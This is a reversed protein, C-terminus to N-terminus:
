EGERAKLRMALSYQVGFVPYRSDCRYVRLRAPDWGRRECAWELLELYRPAEAVRCCDTGNGVFRVSDLLDVRDVDRARNYPLAVGRVYTGYLMLEPEMGPWADPHVLLDLVLRQTPVEVAEMTAAIDGAFRAWRRFMAATYHGFYLDSATGAGLGEDVLHYYSSSESRVIELAPPAGRGFRPLFERADGDGRIPHGDLTQTPHGATDDRCDFTTIMLRTGPRLRQVGIVGEVQVTDYREPDEGPHVISASIIAQSEVGRLNAAARFAMQRSAGEFRERAEPLWASAMSDLAHRGGLDRQLFDEYADIAVNLTKVLGANSTRNAAGRSLRRLSEVGPMYYVVALPDRKGMAILFRSAIDKNVGVAKALDASTRAPPVLANVFARSASSLLEGVVVAREGPLQVTGAQDPTIDQM